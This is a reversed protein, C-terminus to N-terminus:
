AVCIGRSSPPLRGTSRTPFARSNMFASSGVFLADPRERGITGFAADIERSTNVNFAQIQLGMALAAATVDRM